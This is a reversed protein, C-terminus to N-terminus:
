VENPLEWKESKNAKKDAVETEKVRKIESTELHLKQPMNSEVLKDRLRGKKVESFVNSSNVQRRRKM